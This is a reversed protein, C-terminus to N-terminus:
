LKIIKGCIDETRIMKSSNRSKSLLAVAQLCFSSLDMFILKFKDTQRLKKLSKEALDSKGRVILDYPSDPVLFGFTMCFLIIPVIQVISFQWIKTYPGIVYVSLSGINSAIGPFSGLFGRNKNEAIEAIFTGLVSWVAGSGIGMLIRLALVALIPGIMLGLTMAAVIWASETITVPRGIPNLEVDESKSAM